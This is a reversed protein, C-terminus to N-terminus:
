DEEAWKLKQGCVKGKIGTLEGESNLELVLKSGKSGADERDGKAKIKLSDDKKSEKAKVTCSVIRGNSLEIDSTGILKGGEDDIYTVVIVSGDMDSDAIEAYFSETEKYGAVNITITGHMEKAVTDIEAKMTMSANFRYSEGEYSVEGKMLLKQNILYVGSKAKIWGKVTMDMEVSYGGESYSIYGYGSFKGKGDQSVTYGFDEGEFTESYEGSVDWISAEAPFENTYAKADAHPAAGLLAAFIVSGMMRKKM